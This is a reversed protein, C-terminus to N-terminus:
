RESDALCGWGTATVIPDIADTEEVCGLCDVATSVAMKIIRSMRRRLGADPILTKLDSVVEKDTRISDIFGNM